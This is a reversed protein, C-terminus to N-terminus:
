LLSIRCRCLFRRYMCVINFKNKLILIIANFYPLFLPLRAHDAPPKRAPETGPSTIIVEKQLSLKKAPGYKRDFKKKSQM